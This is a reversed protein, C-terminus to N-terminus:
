ADKWSHGSAQLGSLLLRGVVHTYPIWRESGNQRKLQLGGLGGSRNCKRVNVTRLKCRPVEASCAISYNFANYLLLGVYEVRTPSFCGHFRRWSRQAILRM